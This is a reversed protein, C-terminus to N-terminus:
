KSPANTEKADMAMLHINQISGLVTTRPSPGIRRHRMAGRAHPIVVWQLNNEVSPDLFAASCRTNEFYPVNCEGLPISFIRSDRVHKLLTCTRAAGRVDM